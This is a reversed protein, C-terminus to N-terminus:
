PLSFELQIGVRSDSQLVSRRWEIKSNLWLQRTLAYSASLATVSLESDTGINTFGHSLRLDASRPSLVLIGQLGVEVGEISRDNISRLHRYGIQPAINMYSGLSFLYYRGQLEYSSEATPFLSQYSGSLTVPSQGWFVDQIGVHLGLFNDRSVLGFQLKTAFNPTNYIDQLLDPPNVLWRQLVPSSEIIQRDVPNAIATPAISWVGLGVTTLAMIQKNTVNMGWGM